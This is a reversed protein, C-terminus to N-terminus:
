SPKYALFGIHGLAFRLDGYGSLNSVQFGISQLQKTLEQQTLLQLQHVEHDRRYLEGVKRFSTINRTLLGLCEDEFATMLVAWDEGETYTRYPNLGPVRGVTAVDFVLIGGSDLANYIRGFLKLLGQRTNNRDFLYNFCEGVAVIAVCEPLKTTLLSEERFQGNPVRKRAIAVLAKSIDIGLVDYGAAELKQMLIGSGCGLDVVLGSDVGKQRLLELLFPAANKALDGFGADHIYALDEKYCDAIPNHM